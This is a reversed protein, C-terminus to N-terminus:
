GRYKHPECAIPLRKSARNEAMMVGGIRRLSRSDTQQQTRLRNSGAGYLLAFNTTKGVHREVSDKSIAAMPKGYISAATATHLNTGDALLKM